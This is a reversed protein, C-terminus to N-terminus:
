AVQRRYLSISSDTALRYHQLANLLDSRRWPKAIVRGAFSEVFQSDEIRPFDVAAVLTAGGFQRVGSAFQVFEDRTKGVLQGGIWIGGALPRVVPMPQGTKWAGTAYGAQNLLTAVTEIAQWDPSRVVFVGANTSKVPRGVGQASECFGSHWSCLQRHGVRDLNAQWWAEFRHWFVREVDAWPRGNREDGECWTGLLLARGVLPAASIMRQGFDDPLEGPRSIFALALDYRESRNRLRGVFEDASDAVCLEASERIRAIATAFDRHMLNGVALVRM